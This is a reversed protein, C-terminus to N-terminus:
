TARRQGFELGESKLVESLLEEEFDHGLVAAHRLVHRHLPALTDIDTNAVADLSEPLSETGSPRAVRM